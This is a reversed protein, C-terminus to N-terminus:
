LLVINQLSFEYATSSENPGGGTMVIDASRIGFLSLETNISSLVASRIEKGEVAESCVGIRLTPLFQFVAKQGPPIGKKSALLRGDKYINANIAGTSRGNLVEVENKDSASGSPTLTDGSFDTTVQFQQGNSAPLLNSFNGYSDSAAVFMDMPYTFPHRWNVGCYEIVKWAVAMEEYDTAENKQFIVIRSKLKDNSNNVFNLKIDAM